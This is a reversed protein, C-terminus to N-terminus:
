GLPCDRTELVRSPGLASGVLVLGECMRLLSPPQASSLMKQRVVRVGAAVFPPTWGVAAAVSPLQSQPSQRSLRTSGCQLRNLLTRFNVFADTDSMCASGFPCLRSSGGSTFYREEKRQTADESSAGSAGSVGRSPPDAGCSCAVPPPDDLAERAAMQRAFAPNVTVIPMFRRGFSTRWVGASLLESDGVLLMLDDIERPTVKRGLKKGVKTAVADLTSWGCSTPTTSLARGLATDNLRPPPQLAAM